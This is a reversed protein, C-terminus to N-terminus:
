NYVYCEILGKPSTNRIESFLQLKSHIGICEAILNMAILGINGHKPKRIKRFSDLSINLSQLLKLIIVFNQICDIFYKVLSIDSLYEFKKKKLKKLYM